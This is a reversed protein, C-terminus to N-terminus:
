GVYNLYRYKISIKIAYM